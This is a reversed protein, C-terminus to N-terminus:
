QIACVEIIRDLTGPLRLGLVNATHRMREVIPGFGPVYAYRRAGEEAPLRRFYTDIRAADVDYLALGVWLLAVCVVSSAAM